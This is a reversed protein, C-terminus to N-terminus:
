PSYTKLCSVLSRASSPNTLSPRGFTTFRLIRFIRADTWSIPESLSGLCGSSSPWSTPSRQQPLRCRKGLSSTAPSKIRPLTWLALCVSFTRWIGSQANQEIWLNTARCRTDDRLMVIMDRFTLRESDPGVLCGRGMESLRKRLLKLADTRNTSNSSERHRVGRFSDSIWWTPSAKWEGTNKDRYKPRYVSGFGRRSM